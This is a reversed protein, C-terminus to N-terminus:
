HQLCSYEGHEKSQRLNQLVEYDMGLEGEGGHAGNDDHGGGAATATLLAEAFEYRESLKSFALNRQTAPQKRRSDITEYTPGIRSYEAAADIQDAAQITQSGSTTSRLPTTVYRLNRCVSVDTM